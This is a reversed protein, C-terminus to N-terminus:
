KWAVLFEHGHCILLRSKQRCCNTNQWMHLQLVEWPIAMGVCQTLSHSTNAFPNEGNPGSYHDGTGKVVSRVFVLLFTVNFKFSDNGCPCHFGFISVTIRIPVLGRLIIFTLKCKV